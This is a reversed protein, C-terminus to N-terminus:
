RKSLEREYILRHLDMTENDVIHGNGDHIEAEGPAGYVVRWVQGEYHKFLEGAPSISHDLLHSLLAQAADLDALDEPTNIAQNEGRVSLTIPLHHESGYNVLIQETHTLRTKVVSLDPTVLQEQVASTM